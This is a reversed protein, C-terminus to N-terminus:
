TRHLLIELVFKSGLYALVLLVFGSLTWRIATRGRWGYRMRGFLLGGFILWSLLTFINKHTLRMPQHFLTESFMMGSILTLTLLVFGVKIVRFLLTEMVMLPPFDPLKLWGSKKQHLRTEAALMLLSHLAAFTLLSYALLAIILHLMFLPETAYPLVHSEPIVGQLLVFFAAPPLVFAQLSHLQQRFDTIWYILVTLWFITSLANTFGLNLGSQFIATYLLWGHLALGSAILTPRWFAVKKFAQSVPKCWFDAAAVLYLLATILYLAFEFM